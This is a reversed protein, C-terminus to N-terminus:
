YKIAVSTPYDLGVVNTYQPTVCNLNAYDNNIITCQVLQNSSSGTFYFTGNRNKDFTILSPNNGNLQNLSSSNLVIKCNNLSGDGSEIQCGYLNSEPSSENAHGTIYAVNLNPDIAIGFPTSFQNGAGSDVCGSILTGDDLTCKTINNSAYNVIYTYQIHNITAVTIGAPNNLLPIQNIYCYQFDNGNMTCTTIANINFDNIYVVNNEPNIAIGYPASYLFEGGSDSCSGFTGDTNISCIKVAGMNITNSEGASDSVYAETGDSSIKIDFPQTFVMGVGSDSCSLSNDNNIICKTVATKPIPLGHSSGFNTIYLIPNSATIFTFKSTNLADRNSDTIAPSFDLVYKTAYNLRTNATITYTNTNPIQKISIPITINNAQLTINNNNINTVARSFSVEVATNNVIVNNAANKPNIISVVPLMASGTTFSFTAGDVNKGNANTTNNIIIYYKTNPQLPALPSFYFRTDASNAMFSSLSVPNSGNYSTSLSINNPNISDPEMPQSFSVVIMPTQSVNNEGNSLGGDSADLMINVNNSPPEVPPASSSGGSSCSIIAIACSIVLM